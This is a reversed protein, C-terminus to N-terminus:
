SQPVAKVTHAVGIGRCVVIMLTDADGGRHWIASIKSNKRVNATHEVFLFERVGNWSVVRETDKILFPRIQLAQCALAPHATHPLCKFADYSLLFFRPM